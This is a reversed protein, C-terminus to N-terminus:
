RRARLVAAPPLRLERLEDDTMVRVCQLVLDRIADTAATARPQVSSGRSPQLLDGPPSIEQSAFWDRIRRVVSEKLALNWRGRLIGPLGTTSLRRERWDEAQAVLAADHAVISLNTSVFQDRWGDMETESLTPLILFEGGEAQGVESERIAASGNWVYRQGSRYDVIANWLDRRIRLSGASIYHANPVAEDPLLRVTPPKTSDDVVLLDPLRRVLDSITREGYDAENFSRGSLTLLRNKLVAISMQRWDVRGSRRAADFADRILRRLNEGQEAGPPGSLPHLAPGDNVDTM